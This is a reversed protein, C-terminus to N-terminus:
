RGYSGYTRLSQELRPKLLGRFKQLWRNVISWPCEVQYVYVAEDTAFEQSHPVVKENHYVLRAYERWGDHWM